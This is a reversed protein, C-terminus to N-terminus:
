KLHSKNLNMSAKLTSILDAKPINKLKITPINKKKYHKEFSDGHSCGATMSALDKIIKAKFVIQFFSLLFVEIKYFM